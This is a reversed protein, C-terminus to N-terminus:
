YSKSPLSADRRLAELSFDTKGTKCPKEHEDTDIYEREPEPLVAEIDEIATTIYELEKELINIKTIISDPDMFVDLVVNENEKGSLKHIGALIGKLDQLESQLYMKMAKLSDAATNATIINIMVKKM